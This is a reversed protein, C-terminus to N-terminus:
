KVYKDVPLCMARFRNIRCVALSENDKDLTIPIVYGKHILPGDLM